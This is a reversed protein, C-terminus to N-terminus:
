IPPEYDDEDEDDLVLVNGKQPVDDDHVQLDSEGFNFRERRRLMISITFQYPTPRGDFFM